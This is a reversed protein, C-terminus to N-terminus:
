KWRRTQECGKGQMLLINIVFSHTHIYFVLQLGQLNHFTNNPLMKFIYGSCVWNCSFIWNTDNNGFWQHEPQWLWFIKLINFLPNFHGACNSYFISFVHKVLCFSFWYCTRSRTSERDLSATNQLVLERFQRYFFPHWSWKTTTNNDFKPSFLLWQNLFDNFFKNYTVLWLMVGSALSLKVFSWLDSFANRSLGAWTQPCGGCTVYLLQGTACLWWALDLTIAAGVLGMNLKIIFLWSLVIHLLLTAAVLCVIVMNKFQSQLYIQLPFLLVFAFQVPIFWISVSGSLEAVEDSQGLLCSWFQPRM